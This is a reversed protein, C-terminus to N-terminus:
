AIEAVTEVTAAAADRLGSNHCLMIAAGAAVVIVLGGFAIKAANTKYWPVSATETATVNTDTNVNANETTEFM